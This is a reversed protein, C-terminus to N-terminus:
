IFTRSSGRVGTRNSGYLQLVSGTQIATNHDVVVDVPGDGVKLFRGEGDWRSADIDYLSQEHDAAPAAPREPIPFGHRQHQHGVVLPSRHQVSLDCRDGRDLTGPRGSKRSSPLAYGTQAAVWNNEFVNSEILVRRANKLELLNKVTWRSGRWELPKTMYNHRITIDSPVLNRLSPDAGGFM